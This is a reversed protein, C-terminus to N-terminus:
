CLSRHRNPVALPQVMERVDFVGDSNTDRLRVVSGIPREQGTGRTDTMYARMETVYLNGAEDWAMAIPDEILPETAVAEIRFGPAIRFSALAQEPGLVPAPPTVIRQYLPLDPKEDAAEEALALGPQGVWAALALSVVLTKNRIL